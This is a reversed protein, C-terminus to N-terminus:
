GFEFACWKSARSPALARMHHALNQKAEKIRKHSLPFKISIVQCAEHQALPDIKIKL